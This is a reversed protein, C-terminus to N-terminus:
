AMSVFRAGSSKRGMGKSQADMCAKFSLMSAYAADIKNPSEPFEKYLLYGTRTARRRANLVHRMVAPSGDHSIEGTVVAMRFEEVLQSVSSNKGRPWHSIPERASAKVRLRRGFSAEWEAVHTQWHSPDAYFGVVKYDEFAKRVERDVEVPNVSWDKEGQRAEWIHIEFLHRDSVRMGVLATADANGRARGLSGDFGLVIRDGPRVVKDRDECALWEPQSLWADSAHTVQNLYYQRADQPDTAPDWIERVIRDLDVWGGADKASDGYAFRLGALLSDKDSMDTDPPAERHDMLLGDDRTRGENIAQAYNFTQEAVSESGPRYSNPTELTTGGIKGANRRIVSALRVGGNNKVWGETQDMAAFVPRQGEKSLAAATVFEIRGSELAVFTEMPDINYEDIAPGNRLMELLPEYANRTQDENVAAFQVLPTRVEDWPKGVPRGDADWGDFVVPAMAEAAGLAGMLPSKGHGKPRSWVGRRYRRKGTKPDLAYWNLVFQAQENTLHLPRYEAMDPQALFETVWDLVLWGLSPIEGEYLPKFPM